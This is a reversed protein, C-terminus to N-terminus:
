STIKQVYEESVHLIQSIEKPTKGQQRMKSICTRKVREGVIEDDSLDKEMVGEDKYGLCTAIDKFIMGYNMMNKATKLKGIRIKEAQREEESKYTYWYFVDECSRQFLQMASYFFPFVRSSGVIAVSLLASGSLLITGYQTSVIMATQKLLELYPM